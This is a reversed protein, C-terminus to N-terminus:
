WQPYVHCGGLRFLLRAGSELVKWWGAEMGGLRHNREKGPTSRADVFNAHSKMTASSNFNAVSPTGGRDWWWKPYGNCANLHHLLRAESKSVVVGGEGVREFAKFRANYETAATSCRLLDAAM